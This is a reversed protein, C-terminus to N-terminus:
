CFIYTKKALSIDRISWICTNWLKVRSKKRKGRPLDRIEKQSFMHRKHKLLLYQM